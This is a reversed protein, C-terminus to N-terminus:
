LKGINKMQDSGLEKGYFNYCTIHFGFCFKKCIQMYFSKFHKLVLAQYVKKLLILKERERSITRLFIQAQCIPLYYFNRSQGYFRGM